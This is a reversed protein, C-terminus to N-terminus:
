QDRELLKTTNDTVSSPEPTLENTDRWKGTSPATYVNAAPASIEKPASPEQFQHVGAGPAFATPAGDEFMLAYAARLFGGVSFIVAAIVVAFPEADAAITIMTIIPVILFALLFFFLGQMVGRKRPSNRVFPQVGSVPVAGDNAVVMAVGTLSFGCRSCFRTQDSAQEQGCKPCHM